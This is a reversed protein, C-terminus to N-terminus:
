TIGYLAVCADWDRWGARSRSLLLALSRGSHDMSVPAGGASGHEWRCLVLLTPGLRRLPTERLEGLAVCCLSGLLAV